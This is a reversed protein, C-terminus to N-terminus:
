FILKNVKIMTYTLVSAILIEESLKNTLMASSIRKTSKTSKTSKTFKKVLKKKRNTKQKRLSDCFLFSYQM